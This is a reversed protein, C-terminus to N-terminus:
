AGFGQTPMPPDTDTNRPRWHRKRLEIVDQISLGLLYQNLVMYHIRPPVHNNDAVMQLRGFYGDMHAKSEPLDLSKGVTTLLQCLSEVEAETPNPLDSESPLLTKICEHVIRGTVMRLKFLEGILHVLGIGQRKAKVQTYYENSGLEPEGSVGGGAKSVEAQVWGCEFSEQCRSLLLRLFLRGGLILEGHKDRVTNDYVTPSIREMMKRCLRAYVDAWHSEDTAKKFVLKIALGLTAGSMEIESKNVWNIIQDSVSDFNKSTLKNLLAKVQREVLELSREDMVAKKQGVLSPARRQLPAAAVIVVPDLNQYTGGVACVPTPEAEVEDDPDFQKPIELVPVTPQIIEKVAEPEVHSIPTASFGQRDEEDLREIIIESHHIQEESAGLLRDLRENLAQFGRATEERTVQLEQRTSRLEETVVDLRQQLRAVETPFDKQCDLTPQLKLATQYVALAMELSEPTPSSWPSSALRMLNQAVLFAGSGGESPLGVPSASM